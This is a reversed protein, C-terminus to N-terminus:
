RESQSSWKHCGKTLESFANSLMRTRTATSTSKLIAWMGRALIPIIGEIRDLRKPTHWLHALQSSIWILLGALIIAGAGILIGSTEASMINGDKMDDSMEFDIASGIRVTDSTRSTCWSFKGNSDLHIRVFGWGYGSTDSWIFAYKFRNTGSTIDSLTYGTAAEVAVWQHGAGSVLEVVCWAAKAGAPVGTMAVAANWVGATNVATNVVLTASRNADNVPFIQSGGPISPISSNTKNIKDLVDHLAKNIEDSQAQPDTKGKLDVLMTSPYKDAM